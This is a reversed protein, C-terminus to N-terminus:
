GRRATGCSRPVVKGAMELWRTRTEADAATDFGDCCDANDWTPLGAGGDTSGFPGNDQNGMYLHETVDDGPIDVGNM